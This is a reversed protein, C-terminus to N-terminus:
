RDNAVERVQKAWDEPDTHLTYSRAYFRHEWEAAFTFEYLSRGDWSPRCDITVHRASYVKITQDTSGISVAGWIYLRREGNTELYVAGCEEGELAIVPSVTTLGQVTNDM